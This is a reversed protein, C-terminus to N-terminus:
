RDQHKLNQKKRKNLKIGIMKLITKSYEEKKKRLTNLMTKIGKSVHFTQESKTNPCSLVKSISESQWSEGRELGGGNDNSAM